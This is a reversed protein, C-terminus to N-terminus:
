GVRRPCWVHRLRKEKCRSDGKSLDGLDPPTSSYTAWARIVASAKNPPFTSIVVPGSTGRSHEHSRNGTYTEIRRFYPLVDEFSWGELKV